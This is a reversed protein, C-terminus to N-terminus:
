VPQCKVLVNCRGFIMGFSRVAPKRERERVCVAIVQLVGDRQTVGKSCGAVRAQGCSVLARLFRQFVMIRADSHGHIVGMCVGDGDARYRM